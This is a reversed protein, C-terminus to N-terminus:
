NPAKPELNICGWFARNGIKAVSEPVVISELKACHGFAYDPIEVLNKSLTVKALNECGFFTSMGMSVISDPLIIETLNICGKFVSGFVFDKDTASGLMEVGHEITVKTLSARNAFASHGIIKVSGPITISEAAKVEFFSPDGRFASHGIETVSDPITFSTLHWAEDFVGPAITKVGWPIEYHADKRGIPYDLLVTKDKSFLVGDITTMYPNESDVAFETLNYCYIFAKGGLQVNKPLFISKLNYCEYFACQAIHLVSEPIVISEFDDYNFAAREIHTIGDPIVVHSSDIESADERTFTTKNMNETRACYKDENRRLLEDLHEKIDEETFGSFTMEMLCHAVIEHPKLMALTEEDIESGLWESWPWFMLGFGEGDEAIGSVGWIEEEFVLEKQVNIKLDSKTLPESWAALEQYVEYLPGMAIARGHPLPKGYESFIYEWVDYFCSSKFLDYLM